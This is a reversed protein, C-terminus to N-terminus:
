PWIRLGEVSRPIPAHPPTGPVGNHLFWWGAGRRAACLPAVPSGRTAGRPRNKRCRLLGGSACDAHDVGAGNGGFSWASQAVSPRWPRGLLGTSLSDPNPLRSKNRCRSVSSIGIPATPRSHGGRCQETPLKAQRCPGVPRAIILSPVDTRPWSQLDEVSRPFPAQCWSQERRVFNHAQAGRGHRRWLCPAHFWIGLVKLLFPGASLRPWLYFTSLRSRGVPPSPRGNSWVPPTM